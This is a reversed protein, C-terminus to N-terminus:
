SNDSHPSYNTSNDPLAPLIKSESAQIVTNQPIATTNQEKNAHNQAVRQRVAKVQEAITKADLGNFILINTSNSDEFFRKVRAMMELYKPKNPSNAPISNYCKDLEQRFKEITWDTAQLAQDEIRKCEDKINSLSLLKSAEIRSTRESFGAKIASQTGNGYTESFPTAYFKCFLQRKMTLTNKTDM